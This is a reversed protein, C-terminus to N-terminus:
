LMIKGDFVHTATGTMIVPHGDGDWRVTLSGGLLKVTVERDLLGRLIGAVVAACAGTGCAQTEGVGREFVRLAINNRDIVQMFGVNVKAPFREHAEIIPGLSEVPANACDDVLLVAHPNGMSIATLETAAGNVDIEYCSARDNAIFPIEAPTLIPAGMDVSVTDSDLVEINLLSNCTAVRLRTKCSLKKDAIYKGLCRAGNGCQEVESGDANFIRYHFDIDPANPPEIFLLQDCGVGLKRDAIFRIQEPNLKNDHALSDVVVFDNGLGHM